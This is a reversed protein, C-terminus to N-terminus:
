GMLGLVLSVAVIELVTSICILFIMEKIPKINEKKQFKDLVFVSLVFAIFSIFLDEVIFYFPLIIMLIIVIPIIIVMAAKLTNVTKKVRYNCKQYFFCCKGQDNRILKYYIDICIMAFSVICVYHIELRGSIGFRICFYVTFLANFIEEVLQNKRFLYVLDENKRIFQLKQTLSMFSLESKQEKYKAMYVFNKYLFFLTLMVCVILIGNSIHINIILEEKTKMLYIFGLYLVVNLINSYSNYKDAPFKRLKFDIYLLFTLLLVEVIFLGFDALRTPLLFYIAVIYYIILNKYCFYRELARCDINGFYLAMKTKEMKNDKILLKSVFSHLFLVVITGIVFYLGLFHQVMKIGFLIGLVVTFLSLINFIGYISFRTRILEIKLRIIKKLFKV